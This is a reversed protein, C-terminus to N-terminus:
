VTWLRHQPKSIWEMGTSTVLVVEELGIYGRGPVPVGLELTFVNGAEILGLPAHGYRDWRPGLLTSGDHAVRGVQHGLAHQYEPYGAEILSARAAADVEWGSIGVRLRDAGANLATWCAEWARSVDAPPRHEGTNLLYWNRQLDSCYGNRRVGFDIHLLQGRATRFRGPLAHGINSNPGANVVPCYVGGWAPELDLTRRAETLLNAIQKESQGVRLSKSLQSFMKETVRVASRIRRVETPSKRGRLAAVLREASVIRDAYASGALIAHLARWMGHTLGDAAPDSESYNVAITAPDLDALVQSLAPRISQDYGIVETYANISRVNEVDFRGVVALSRGTRSILFASQWTMGIGAILDLSPDPTLSSERTFTLWAELDLENLLGVAQDLKERVVEFDM